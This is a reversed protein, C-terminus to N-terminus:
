TTPTATHPGTCEMDHIRGGRDQSYCDCDEGSPAQPRIRDAAERIAQPDLSMAGDALLPLLAERAADAAAALLDCWHRVADIGHERGTRAYRLGFWAPDTGYVAQDVFHGLMSAPVTVPKGYRATTRDTDADILHAVRDLVRDTAPATAPLTRAHASLGEAVARAAARPNLPDGAADKARYRPDTSNAYLVSLYHGDPTHLQAHFGAPAEGPETLTEPAGILVFTDDPGLVRFEFGGGQACEVSAALDARHLELLATHMAPHLKSLLSSRM